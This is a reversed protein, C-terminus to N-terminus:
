LADTLLSLRAIKSEAAMKHSSARQSRWCVGRGAQSYARNPRRSPAAASLLVEARPSHPTAPTATNHVLQCFSQCDVCAPARWCEVKASSAAMRGHDNARIYATARATLAQHNTRLKM